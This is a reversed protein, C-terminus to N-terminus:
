YSFNLSSGMTNEVVIAESNMYKLVVFIDKKSLYPNEAM